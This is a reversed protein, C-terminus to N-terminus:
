SKPPDNFFNCALPQSRGRLHTPSASPSSTEQNRRRAELRLGRDPQHAGLRAAPRQGAHERDEGFEPPVDKAVADLGPDGLGAFLAARVASRLRDGFACGLHCPEKLFAGALPRNGPPDADAPSGNALEEFVAVRLTCNKGNRPTVGPLVESDRILRRQLPKRTLVPM